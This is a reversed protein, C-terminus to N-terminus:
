SSKIEQKMRKKLVILLALCIWFGYIRFTDIQLWNLLYGIGSILITLPIFKYKKNAGKLEIFVIKIFILLFVMFIVFGFIGTETLIRLYLNYGPPFSKVNENLYIYNFEYNNKLAWDPYKNKSEYAQQGWGVGLIPSELFVLYNAYQIGLRSKNSISYNDSKYTTESFDLAKIRNKVAAVVIESRFILINVFVFTLVIMIRNFISRFKSNIMYAYMVAVFMQAFIIVFASRSKSLLVLVIVVLFPVFKYWKKNTLIYSFMFGSITILYMGLAPPEYTLSSIRLLRYDLKVEIFPLYDFLNIIPILSNINYIIILFEFFAYGTVIVLSCFFIRRILLFGSVVGIDRIVNCFLYFFLISSLVVSTVQNLYRVWGPTQKFYYSSIDLYNLLGSLLIITFFLFFLNYPQKYVPLYIKGRSFDNILLFVIGILFFLPSSERSYEGLFSMFNPPESNFPLFFVGLIFFIRYTIKLSIM